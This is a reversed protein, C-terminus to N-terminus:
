GGNFSSRNFQSVMTRLIVEPNPPEPQRNSLSVTTKFGESSYSIDLKSLGATPSLVLGQPEGAFVYTVNKQPSRNIIQSARPIEAKRKVNWTDYEPNTLDDVLVRIEKVSSADGVEGDSYTVEAPEEQFIQIARFNYRTVSGYAADSRSHLAVRGGNKLNITSRWCKKNVLGEVFDEPKPQDEDDDGKLGADKYAIKRAREEATICSKEELNKKYSPCSIKNNKQQNQLIDARSTELPHTSSISTSVTFGILKTIFKVNNPFIVLTNVNKRQDEKLLDPVLYDELGSEKLDIHVPACVQIEKIIKEYKLENQAEEPSHSMSGQREYIYQGAFDDSNEEQKTQRPETNVEIEVIKNASCYFFNGSSDPIRYYRGLYQLMDQELQKWKEHLTADYNIFNFDFNPLGPEDLAEYDSLATYGLQKLLGIIKEKNTPIGSDQTYGLVDWDKRSFSHIDRLASSIFGCHAATIFDSLSRRAGWRSEESSLRKLVSNKSMFYSLPYPRNSQTIAFNFDATLEQPPTRSKQTLGISYQNFTGEISSGVEKSIIKSNELNTQINTIGAVIDYFVLQNRSYDWYFSYGFDACWSSLVSRLSGEYTRRFLQNKDQPRGTVSIGALSIAALLETFNYDTNPIECPSDRFKEKGLLLVNGRKIPSTLGYSLSKIETDKLQRTKFEIFPYDPNSNSKVPALIPTDKSFPFIKSLTIPVGQVGLLGKRWLMVWHRDLDISKDIIDVELVQEEPSTRYSYSHIYGNFSFSGFSVKVLNFLDKDSINYFGKENVINLKLISPAESYNSELNLGYIIGGFTPGNIQPIKSIAM